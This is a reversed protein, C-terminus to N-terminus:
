VADCIAVKWPSKGRLSLAHDLYTDSDDVQSRGTMDHVLLGCYEWGLKGGRMERTLVGFNYGGENLSVDYMM